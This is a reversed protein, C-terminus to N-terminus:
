MARRVIVTDAHWGQYKAGKMPGCLEWGDALYRPLDTAFIYRYLYTM